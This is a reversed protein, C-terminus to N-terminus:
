EYTCTIYHLNGEQIIVTNLTEESDVSPMETESFSENHQVNLDHDINVENCSVDNLDTQNKTMSSISPENYSVLDNNGKCENTETENTDNFTSQEKISQNIPFTTM